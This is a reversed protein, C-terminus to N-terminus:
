EPYKGGRTFGEKKEDTVGTRGCLVKTFVDCLVKTFTLSKAPIRKEAGFARVKSGITRNDENKVSMNFCCNCVNQRLRSTIANKGAIYRIITRFVM